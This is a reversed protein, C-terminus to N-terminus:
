KKDIGYKHLDIGYKHPDIGYKHLDTIPIKIEKNMGVFDQKRRIYVCRVWQDKDNWIGEDDIKEWKTGNSKEKYFIDWEDKNDNKKM